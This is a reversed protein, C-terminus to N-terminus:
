SAKLSRKVREVVLDPPIHFNKTKVYLAFTDALLLNLGASVDRTATSTLDTPTQLPAARRSKVTRRDM